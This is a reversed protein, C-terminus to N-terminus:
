NEDDQKRDDRAIAIQIEIRRFKWHAGRVENGRGAAYKRLILPASVKNIAEATFSFDEDIAAAIEVTLTEKLRIGFDVIHLGAPLSDKLLIVHSDNQNRDVM